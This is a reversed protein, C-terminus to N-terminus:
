GNDEEGFDILVRGLWRAESLTMEPLACDDIRVVIGVCDGKVEVRGNSDCAYMM